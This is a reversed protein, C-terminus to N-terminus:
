KQDRSIAGRRRTRRDRGECEHEEFKNSLHKEAGLPDISFDRPTFFKIHCHDCEALWPTEREYKLIVLKRM